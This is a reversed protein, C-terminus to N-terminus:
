PRGLCGFSDDSFKWQNPNNKQADATLNPNLKVVNGDRDIVYFPKGRRNAFDWDRESGGGTDGERTV